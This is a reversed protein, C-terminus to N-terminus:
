AIATEGHKAALDHHIARATWGKRRLSLVISQQDM